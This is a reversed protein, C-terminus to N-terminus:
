GSFPRMGLARYSFKVQCGCRKAKGEDDHELGKCNHEDLWPTIVLRDFQVVGRLGHAESDPIVPEEDSAVLVRIEPSERFTRGSKTEIPPAQMVEINFGEVVWVPRGTTPDVEQGGFTKTERDYARRASVRTPWVGKPLAVASEVPFRRQM